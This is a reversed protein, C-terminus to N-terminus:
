SHIVGVNKSISTDYMGLSSPQSWTACITDQTVVNATITPTYPFTNYQFTFAALLTM